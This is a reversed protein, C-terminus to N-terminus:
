EWTGQIKKLYRAARQTINLAPDIELLGKEKMLSLGSLGLYTHLPDPIYDEWKAFGGTLSDQTTMIYARNEAFDIMDFIELMQITAGVWFSYCTDEQKNARGQFGTVQRMLVWRKLGELQKVNLVSHLKGMLSLVAVACYTVGGHSELEPGQGFGYDYSMSRMIYEITKETDMGSWDQLIYCIVAACYVFRMDNESGMQTACFSGDDQQLSRVGKIIAKRNVRSLDDGLILLSALGTYTMALHGSTFQKNCSQVSDDVRITFTDSGQFGCRDMNGDADPLIQLSYIWNCINEKSDKIEDLADLVDLGSISFFAITLRTSDYSSLTDPLLKLFQKLYRIHERRTLETPEGEM